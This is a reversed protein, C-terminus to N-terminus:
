PAVEQHAAWYLGGSACLAGCASLRRLYRDSTSFSVELVAKARESAQKHTLSNKGFVAEVFERDTCTKKRGQSRRLADPDLDKAVTLIPYEWALVFDDVQAMNRLISSVTFCNEEEHPTVVLIADPDRAWAGAGSMRDIASKASSDGKAFHHALVLAASTTQCLGEMENMLGGIDGNSNEDRDGLLKYAPDLIILGFAERALAAELMPRLITIDANKGRLNWVTLNDEWGVCEPRARAIANVRERIAWPQLEFNIYCVRVKECRFGWWLEGCATSIALDLLAWSKNSKSTGGLIMKCGRHLLGRIIQLPASVPLANFDRWREMPPLTYKPVVGLDVSPFVQDDTSYTLIEM